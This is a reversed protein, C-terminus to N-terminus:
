FLYFFIYILNSFKFIKCNNNKAAAEKCADCKCDLPHTSDKSNEDKTKSQQLPNRGFQQQLGLVDKQLPPSRTSGINILILFILILFVIKTKM